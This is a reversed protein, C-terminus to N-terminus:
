IRKENRQIINIHGSQNKPRNIFIRFISQTLFWIREMFKRIDSYPKRTNGKGFVDELAKTSLDFNIARRPTQTRTEESM